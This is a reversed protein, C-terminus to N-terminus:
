EWKVARGCKMCYRAIGKAGLSTGCQGCDYIEITNLFQREFIPEIPEQAELLELADRCIQQFDCADHDAFRTRYCCKNCPKVPEEARCRLADFVTKRDVMGNQKGKELDPM